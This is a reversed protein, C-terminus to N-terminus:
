DGLRMRASTVTTMLAAGQDSRLTGTQVLVNV